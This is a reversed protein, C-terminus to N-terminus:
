HFLTTQHNFKIFKDDTEKPIKKINICRQSQQVYAMHQAPHWNKAIKAM